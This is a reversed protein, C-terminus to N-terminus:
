VRVDLEFQAELELMAASHSQAAASNHFTQTDSTMMRVTDVCVSKFKLLQRPSVVADGSVAEHNFGRQLTNCCREINMICKLVAMYICTNAGVRCKVFFAM